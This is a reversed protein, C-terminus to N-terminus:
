TPRLVDITSGNSDGDPDHNAAAAYTWGAKTAGTVTFTVSGVTARSLKTKQITCRGSSTTTCSSTGSSGNSWTGTVIVGSLAANASTEIYVTVKATWQKGSATASRDLDGVRFTNPPPPPATVTISVTAINSAASGDSATYGFADSGSYGASPTYTVTGNAVATGHAPVSVSGVSLPDGDPDSDNALVSITIASGAATTASDNAAVPPRNVHTVTVSVDGTATGGHGDSVVYSFADSGSFGSAPVYHITGDPNASTAGHAANGVSALSLTDGDPDTDNALVAVNVATDQLTSATDPNAVPPQNAPPNPGLVANQANVVGCGFYPAYRPDSPLIPTGDGFGTQVGWGQSATSCLRNRVDDFLGPQGQDTIGANLLLAVTGAVHPSAMSTGSEPAYGNPSCLLCSGVPVPSFIQDGPAAFDVEPGTCSYGTLADNPNTFTTSLVQPYAGPYTVACGFFLETITVTNGSAAVMLLGAAAANEVASQLPPVVDHTGLSMNVVDIDNAVAWELAAILDSEYGNGNADLIKLAYLDVRPAVGVVLYGNKEAALIGAVHTGHGNDDMPDSDHNVFDYGGRYNSLFEPDVVPPENAPPQDHLYDIGSDIVAVKVGQGWIGADHVAKSGIHTVGWANDYEFDGTSQAQAAAPEVAAFTADPEVSAILPNHRLGNMAAVPLEVAMGNILHFSRGIIGGAAIVAQRAAPGPPAKLTVIAKVRPGGAGAHSAAGAPSVSCVVLAALAIGHSLGFLRRSTYRTRRM